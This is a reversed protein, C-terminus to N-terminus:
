EKRYSRMSWYRYGQDEAKDWGRRELEQGIMANFFGHAVVLVNHGNSAHQTLLDAARAARVKAQQKTEQGEHHGLFWWWFRSIVGWIRPPLRVFSPFNPPPLPAEIFVEDPTFRHDELIHRATEISRRRTSSFVVGAARATDIVCDPPVQGELLGGEEYTAWWKRYEAANLRIKRSLAPEGHRALVISGTAAAATSAVAALEAKAPRQDVAESTM